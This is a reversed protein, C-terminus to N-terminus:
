SIKAGKNVNNVFLAELSKGESACLLMGESEIGRIKVPKLNCLVVVKKGVLESPDYYEKIGSVVTRVKDKTDIRSVLLKKADPHVKSELVEGVRIDLKDFDDLTIYNVPEEVKEEEVKPPTMLNKIYAVEKEVDLRPFIPTAKEVVNYSKKTGRVLVDFGQYDAEVNLQAFIKDSSEILFPRYLVAAVRLSEALHYLVDNLVDKKSEDKALAWPMTEDVLKNTRSVLRTIEQLALSVKLDEMNNKYNEVVETTLKSVESFYCDLDSSVGKYEVNGGFYKNIMTITRNLLNGLDNALDSNVCYVFDEPTFVGDNGYPLAKMLTYRFADLGYKEVLPEPYIVNGKSKSMKGDKMLYWGHAVIKFPIEEGLAMLMIPWYIAHFRLIDKAMVHIVEGNNWYKKYLSDDKSDYGLATIYNSLADIWVYIVHKPNSPVKVGWDFSTRSVCLDNLGSKIFSIVENRRAEPKIFDPHSEIFELLRDQYKGLRLFYSEEKVIKTPRGCDPCIGEEGVQTKTFFSECEVCYDGEYSGLYIDDNKLLKEFLRAVVEEHRKETTRIFDDYRVDLFKWLDKAQAAIIDVHEQPTRNNKKANLEIKQGHEDMGTLFYADYGQLLKYRKITDALCTSYATGIHFKGSPYYIPTTVYFNKSM